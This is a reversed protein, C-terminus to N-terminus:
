NRQYLGVLESSDLIHGEMAGEINGVTSSPDIDLTIDLAYLKFFYRHTGSPPCPGDYGPMGFDTVGEVAGAPVSNESIEATGPDINWVTWHVWTKGPADPDDVILVLSKASGPVGSITLTPNLNEADCTYKSPIMEDNAFSPSGIIMNGGAAEETEEEVIEEEPEEAQEEVPEEQVEEVEEEVIEVVDEVPEAEKCAAMFTFVFLFSFSLAAVISVKLIKNKSM